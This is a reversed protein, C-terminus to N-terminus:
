INQKEIKKPWTISTQISSQAFKINLLQLGSSVKEDFTAYQYNKLFDHTALIFVKLHHWYKCKKVILLKNLFIQWQLCIQARMKQMNM